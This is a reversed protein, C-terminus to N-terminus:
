ISRYLHPQEPRMGSWCLEQLASAQLSLQIVCIWSMVHGSDKCCRSTPLHQQWPVPYNFHVSQFEFKEISSIEELSTLSPENSMNRIRAYAQWSILVMMHMEMRMQVYGLFFFMEIRLGEQPPQYPKLCDRFRERERETEIIAAMLPKVTRDVMRVMASSLLSIRKSRFPCSLM